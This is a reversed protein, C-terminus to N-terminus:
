DNKNEDTKFLINWQENKNDRHWIATKMTVIAPIVFAQMFVGSSNPLASEGLLRICNTFDQVPRRGTYIEGMHFIREDALRGAEEVSEANVLFNTDHGDPGEEPNGWRTVLYINM